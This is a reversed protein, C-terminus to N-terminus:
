PNENPLALLQMWHIDNIDIVNQVPEHSGKIELAYNVNTLALGSIVQAAEGDLKAKLYNMKDVSSLSSNSNIASDFSDWFEPWLLLEGSFKKFDIKPLKVANPKSATKATEVELKKELKVKELNFHM